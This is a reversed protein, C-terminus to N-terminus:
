EQVVKGSAACQRGFVDLLARFHEEAEDLRCREPSMFSKGSAAVAARAMAQGADYVDQASVIGFQEAAPYDADTPTLFRAQTHRPLTLANM